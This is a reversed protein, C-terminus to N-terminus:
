PVVARYFMSGSPSIIYPSTALFNTTWPGNISPSQLLNGMTWSIQVNTGAPAIQLTVPPLTGLAASYLTQLQNSSLTQNFIAVAAIAGNFNEEGFPAGNPDSGIYEPNNFAMVQNTSGNPAFYQNPLYSEDTV